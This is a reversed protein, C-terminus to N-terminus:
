KDNNDNDGSSSDDRTGIGAERARDKEEKGGQRGAVSGEFYAELNAFWTRIDEEPRCTLMRYRVPVTKRILDKLERINRQEEYYIEMEREYAEMARAFEPREEREGQAASSSSGTDTAERRRPRSETSPRAPEELWSIESGGNKLSIRDWLEYCVATCRFEYEWERWQEPSQLKSDPGQEFNPM